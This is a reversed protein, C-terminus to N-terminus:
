NQLLNNIANCATVTGGEQQRAYQEFTQQVKGKDSPSELCNLLVNVAEQWNDVRFVLNQKFIEEGVWYFNSWSQGIVPQLGATMAELFNQGGLPMLSGGVFAADARRYGQQLEGIRDWLIVSSKQVPESIESRLQLPIKDRQLHQQWASIREMHRPFLGIVLKPNHHLLSKIMQGILGEEESRTSGLVVFPVDPAIVSSLPAHDTTETATRLLRDFKINTMISTRQRGFVCAYREGDAESMALITTPALTKWFRKLRLYGRMSRETMRGNIVCVNIAGKKCARLFGPWLETEILVVLSPAVMAVARDMFDPRDFPCYRLKLSINASVPTVKRLIDMGQSTNTTVLVVLPQAPSLALLIEEVIFAEGVSAAQIWLDAKPLHRKLTREGYGIKMRKHFRLLPVMFLWLFRYIFFIIKPSPRPTFM